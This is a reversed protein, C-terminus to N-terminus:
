QRVDQQWRGSHVKGFLVAILVAMLFGIQSWYQIEYFFGTVAGGILAIAYWRDSDVKWLSKFARLFMLMVAAFGMIGQEYFLTVFGNDLAPFGPMAVPTQDMIISTYFGNGFLKSVLPREPFMVTLAYIWYRIRGNQMGGIANGRSDLRFIWIYLLVAAVALVGIILLWWKGLRLYRQHVIIFLILLMVVATGIWGSRSYTILIAPIYVLKLLLNLWWHKWVMPIAIGIVFASACPIPHRYVSCVVYQYHLSRLMEEMAAFSGAKMLQPVYVYLQYVATGWIIWSIVAMGARFAKRHFHYVFCAIVAAAFLRQLEEIHTYAVGQFDAMLDSARLTTLISAIGMTVVFRDTLSLRGISKHEKWGFLWICFVAFAAMIVIKNFRVEDFISFLFCVPLVGACLVFWIRQAPESERWEGKWIVDM